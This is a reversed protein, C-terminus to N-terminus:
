TRIGQATPHKDSVNECDATGEYYVGGLGYRELKKEALARAFMGCVLASEHVQTEAGPAIKFTTCSPEANAPAHPPVLCIQFAILIWM